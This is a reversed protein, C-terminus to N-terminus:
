GRPLHDAHHAAAGPRAIQPGDGRNGSARCAAVIQSRNEGGNTFGTLGNDTLACGTMVLGENTAHVGHGANSAFSCGSVILEVTDAADTFLGARGRNQSVAASAITLSTVDAAHHVILIGHEANARLEAGTLTLRHKGGVVTIGDGGNEQAVVSALTACVDSAEVRIGSGANARALVSSVTVLM